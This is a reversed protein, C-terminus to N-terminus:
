GCRVAALTSAAGVPGAESVVAYGCGDALSTIGEAQDLEPIPVQRHPWTAFDGPDAGAAPSQYSIVEDYTLLLV